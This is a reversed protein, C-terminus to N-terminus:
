IGRKIISWSNETQNPIKQGTTPKASYSLANDQMFISKLKFSRSQRMYWGFVGSLFFYNDANIKVSDHFISPVKLEVFRALFM